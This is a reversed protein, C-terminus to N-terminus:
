SEHKWDKDHHHGFGVENHPRPIRRPPAMFAYFFVGFFPVLIIVLVWMLQVTHHLDPRNLALGLTLLWIALWTLLIMVGIFDPPHLYLFNDM